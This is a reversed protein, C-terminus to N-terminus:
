FIYRLKKLLKPNINDLERYLYFNTIADLTKFDYSNEIGCYSSTFRSNIELVLWKNKHRVIDVGVIGLLGKFKKTIQNALIEIEKRFCELGGM